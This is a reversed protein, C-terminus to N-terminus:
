KSLRRELYATFAARKEASFSGTALQPADNVELCYWLGSSKDQVFDVGAVQRALLKAAALSATRVAAPLKAVPVIRASAGKSVNNLHTARSVRARRIVLELKAGFILIRYDEDNDIFTQALCQVDHEAAQRCAARFSERNTVLFNNEGNSGNIDKLVFPLGLQQKLYDYSEKLRGPAIFISPPVAIGAASLLLLQHLKSTAAVQQVARDMFAVDRQQLYAALTAALDRRGGSTKFYVLDFSAADRGSEVLTIQTDAPGIAFRLDDYTAYTVRLKKGHSELSKAFRETSAARKVVLMLVHLEPKAPKRAVDVLFKGQLTRRGILLPYSNHSRDALGITAKVTRGGITLRLKVKYRFETQGFSNKVSVVRYDRTTIVAGTYFPSAKGFLTFSLVGKKEAINSAWVASGDAGTDIKAPVAQVGADPLSVREITGLRSLGKM